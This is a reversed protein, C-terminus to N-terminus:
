QLCTHVLWLLLCVICPFHLAPFSVLVVRFTVLDHDTHAIHHQSPVELSRQCESLDGLLDKVRADMVSQVEQLM